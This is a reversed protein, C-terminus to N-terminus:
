DHYEYAGIDPCNVFAIIIRKIIQQTIVQVIGGVPNGLYDTTLGVDVGADICPSTPQLTFDGNAPDTMLPDSSWLTTSSGDSYTGENTKVPMKIANYTGAVTKDAAIDVDFGKANYVITNTVTSSADAQIRMNYLTCNIISNTAGTITIKDDNSAHIYEYNPNPSVTYGHSHSCFWTDWNYAALLTEIDASPKLYGSDETLTKRTTNYRGQHTCIFINKDQNNTLTTELFTLAAASISNQAEGKTDEDSLLIFAINGITVSYYCLAHGLETEFGDAPAAGIDSVDHNGMLEYWTSIDSADRTTIYNAYEAEDGHVIDGLVFAIDVNLASLTDDIDNIVTVFDPTAEANAGIHPDSIMAINASAGSYAYQLEWSTEINPLWAGTGCDRYKLTATKSGNTLQLIAGTKSHTNPAYGRLISSVDFHWHRDTINGEIVCYQLKDNDGDVTVEGKINLQNLTIYDKDNFDIVPDAAHIYIGPDTYATDPDTTSYVYLVNSAWYWDFEADCAAISSQKTGVADDFFVIDPELSLTAQWTNTYSPSITIDDYYISKSPMDSQSGIHGFRFWYDTYSAHGTFNIYIETWDAQSAIDNYLAGANWTGDPALFVNAGSNYLAWNGQDGNPSSHKHWLSFEYVQGPTLPVPDGADGGMGRQTYANNDSADVDARWAYTGGHLVVGERNITSTGAIVEQWGDMDTVSAWSEMDGNVLVNDGTTKETWGSVLGDGIIPNAGTGHATYTIVSSTSSGSAPVTITERFTEGKRFSVIDGDAEPVDLQLAAWSVYDDTVDSGITYTAM